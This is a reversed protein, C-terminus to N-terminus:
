EEWEKEPWWWRLGGMVMSIRLRDGGLFLATKFLTVKVKLDEEAAGRLQDFLTPLPPKPSQIFAIVRTPLDEVMHKTLKCMTSDSDYIKSVPEGERFSRTFMYVAGKEVVRRLDTMDIGMMITKSTAIKLFTDLMSTIYQNVRGLIMTIPVDGLVERVYQNDIIVTGTRKAVELGCRWAKDKVEEGEWSFPSTVFAIIPINPFWKKLDEVIRPGSGSGFGHGASIVVPVLSVNKWSLGAEGLVEGIKEKLAKRGNKLYDQEGKKPDMGSGLGEGAKVKIIDGPLMDLDKWSSNIAIKRMETTLRSLINGAGSGAGIIFPINLHEVV